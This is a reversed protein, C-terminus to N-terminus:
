RCFITAKITMDITKHNKPTLGSTSKRHACSGKKRGSGTKERKPITLAPNVCPM